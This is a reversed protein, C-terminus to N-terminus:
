ADSAAKGIPPDGPRWFALAAITDPPPKGFVEEYEEGCALQEDPWSDGAGPNEDRLHQHIAQCRECRKFTEASGDFVVGLRVYRHGPLIRENCASCRHEKRATVRKEDYVDYTEDYGQM